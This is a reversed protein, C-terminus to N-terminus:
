DTCLADDSFVNESLIGHRDSQLSTRIIQM